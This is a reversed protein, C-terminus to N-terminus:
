GLSFAHNGSVSLGASVSAPFCMAMSSGSFSHSAAARAIEQWSNVPVSAQSLNPVKGFYKRTVLIRAIGSVLMRIVSATGAMTRWAAPRHGSNRIVSVLWVADARINMM